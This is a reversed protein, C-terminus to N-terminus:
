CRHPSSRESEGHWWHEGDAALQERQRTTREEDETARATDAFPELLEEVTHVTGNSVTMRVNAAANIDELPDGDVIALDALRGPEVTGLDGGLGLWRAPATTTVTLAERPTFGHAVMARMNQHLSIATNDLPADTGSIITGGGDHIARLMAVKNELSARYLRVEPSDRSMRDAKARLDEYEWSPFLTRTREDDVLSRDEGYLVASTFLTPTISMGSRSFLETADEYARGLESVTHSYGLRNTAGTHEMGDMGLSVAPYLYHSSLPLDQAHARAVAARQLDVPLRVYTKVLDYELDFARQLELELQERDRTPRMFDYYVRSGDVAEGTAFYRPGTVAGSELAERTELMQYAPDGPSRTATVGYALWLRGQRSGWQRGRLHWHNHADILGPIVTLGTADVVTAEGETDPEDSRDRVETVRTGDVVIDVDRRLGEAVGDWLAGARIVTRGEPAPRKWTLPVSVTEPEGGTASVRRLRGGSLYLLTRSDGSWTPSDTVESTIRRATGTFAGSGDVPVVWLVSEMVFALMRGDPSWVPGDDGRTSLSRYPAPETYRTTGSGLDLTLIQSTGERFRQSRPRVAALALTRGDPSWTPRGPQFLEPLVRRTSDAGIDHVWTAGDQDQYAVRDGDPSWRPALQAGSLRTLRTRTDSELDHRWLAPHGSRDSSYVLATGDPHWDPDSHFYGEETIRRAEGGIDLVWVAGLARFAVRQGDPSLVPGAIGRVPRETTDDVDRRAPHGTAARYGVSARFGTDDATGASVDRHRVAGDATYLLTDEGTWSVAGLFVDEGDTVATGEVVLDVTEASRVHALKGAPSLAPSSVTTGEVAAVLETSAGDLDTARVSRGAGATHVVRGGDAAWSPHGAEVDGGTLPTLEESDRHYLWVGYGGDRDSAMAITSGDPSFRPERHDHPGETVRRPEGDPLELTYVHYTGERYSQFTLTRSDPAFHPRTADQLDSTLRRAKGGAAPVLWLVTYLDLVLWSGDPSATASINTGETVTVTGSTDADGSEALVTGDPDLLWLAGGALALTGGLAFLDRRNVGDRSPEPLPM